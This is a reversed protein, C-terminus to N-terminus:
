MFYLLANLLKATMVAVDADPILNFKTAFLRTVGLKWHCLLPEEGFACVCYIMLEFSGWM